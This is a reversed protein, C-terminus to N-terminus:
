FYLLIVIVFFMFASYKIPYTMRIASEAPPNRKALFESVPTDSNDPGKAAAMFSDCALAVDEALRNRLSFWFIDKYLFDGSNTAGFPYILVFPLGIVISSNLPM